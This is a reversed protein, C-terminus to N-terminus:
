HEIIIKKVSSQNDMLIEVFYIGTNLQIHSLDIEIRGTFPQSIILEGLINRLLFSSTVNVAAMEIVLYDTAPNPYINVNLPKIIPESTNSVLDNNQNPSIPHFSFQGTGNPLRASAMNTIQTEFSFSDIVTGAEHTLILQEGAAGLKFPLHLGEQGEDKDAWLILYEDSALQTGNPFQWKQPQEFNDSLYFNSLDVMEASNNYLELWDDFEGAADALGGVSDKNSAVFENIVVDQWAITAFAQNCDYVTTKLHNEMQPLRYDIFYNLAPLEVFFGGGTGNGVDFEFWDRSFIYNPDERIGERILNAQHKILPALREKTFNNELIICLFNLYRERYEQILFLKNILVKGVDQVLLPLDRNYAVGTNFTINPLSDKIKQYQFYCVSDWQVECCFPDISIVQQFISDKGDLLISDAEVAMCNSLDQLLDIKKCRTHSCNKGDEVIQTTLCVTTHMINDFSKIPNQEMAKEGNGFDWEWATAELNSQELFVYQGNVQYYSFDTILECGEQLPQYPNGVFDFDGGMALNYDWPIWEFLDTSPNHYLYWNRKGQLYSDWNNLTVDVAMAKLYSDVDFVKEIEEQFVNSPRRNLVEIFELFDSWDDAEKNTKKEFDRKYIEKDAGAWQLESIRNNKYLNGNGNAFNNELFTKDIQEIITYLGWYTGNIFLKCHAVRPVKLGTKRLIDYSLFDRLMSPDCSGNHLNFKKLGDFTQLTDYENIDIKFPKKLATSHTFTSKGRLRVGVADLSVGDISMAAPISVIDSGSFGRNAWYYTTLTDWFTDEAFSLHIEHLVTNDFLAKGKQAFISNTTFFTIFLLTIYKM